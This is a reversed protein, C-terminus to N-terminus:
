RDTEAVPLDFRYAPAGDFDYWVVDLGADTAEVNINGPSSEVRAPRGTFPNILPGTNTAAAVPVANTRLFHTLAERVAPISNSRDATQPLRLCAQVAPLDYADATLSNVASRVDIRARRAITEVKGLPAKPLALLGIVCVAIATIGGWRDISSFWPAPTSGQSGRFGGFVLAAALIWASYFLSESFASTWTHLTQGKSQIPRWRVVVDRSMDHTTLKASLKTAAISGEVLSLLEPNRIRLPFPGMTPSIPIRQSVDPAGCYRVKWGAAEARGNGFVYLDCDLSDAGVGTLRMPYIAQFTPFRFVLPHLPTVAGPTPNQVRAAVFVWGRDLYDRVVPLIDEPASFGRTRLWELLPDASTATLTVVDFVGARVESLVTVETPLGPSIDSVGGKAKALSPLFMSALIAVVGLVVICDFLTISIKRQLRWRIILAAVGVVLGGIWEWHTETLVRPQFLTQLTPFLGPDAPRISVPSAPLPLIWGLETAESRVTTEVVLTEIGDHWHILARQSPTDARVFAAPPFIKGDGLCPLTLAILCLFRMAIGVFRTVKM